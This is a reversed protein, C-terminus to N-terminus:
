SKQQQVMAAFDAASVSWVPKGRNYGDPTPYCVVRSASSLKPIYIGSYNAYLELMKAICTKAHKYGWREFDILGGAQDELRIIYTQKQM